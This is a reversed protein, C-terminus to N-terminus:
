RHALRGVRLLAAGGFALVTGFVTSLAGMKAQTLLDGVPFISTAVFLAFAFGTSAILAVVVLDRWRFHQPMLFGCALALGAAALIGVPRGVLAALPLAWTGPEFYNFVVGSNVVAFFFLVVQAPYKLIHELHSPADHVSKPADDFLNLDRPTHPVFPVIPILALAPQLGTQLFGWWCV